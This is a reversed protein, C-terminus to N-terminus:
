ADSAGEKTLSNGSIGAAATIAGHLLKTEFANRLRREAGFLDGEARGSQELVPRRAHDDRGCTGDDNVVDPFVVRLVDVAQHGVDRRNERVAFHQPVNYPGEIPMM